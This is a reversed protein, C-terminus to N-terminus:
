RHELDLHWIPGRDRDWSWLDGAETRERRLGARHIVRRLSELREAAYGSPDYLIIGDLAVDLMFSPLGTDLEAPTKALISVLARCSPPLARKIEIHRSLTGAPLDEVLVLLDWDSEDHSDGRARSGYLVVAWLRQGFARQLARVACQAPSDPAPGTRAEEPSPHRM